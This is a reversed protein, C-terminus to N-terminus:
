FYRIRIWWLVASFILSTIFGTGGRLLFDLFLASQIDAPLNSLITLTLMPSVFYILGICAMISFIIAFVTVIIKLIQKFSVGKKPKKGRGQKPNYKPKKSVKSKHKAQPKKEM